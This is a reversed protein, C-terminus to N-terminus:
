DTECEDNMAQKSSQGTPVDDEAKRKGKKNARNIQKSTGADVDIANIRNKSRTQIPSSRALQQMKTLDPQVTIIKFDAMGKLLKCNKICQNKKLSSPLVDMIPRPYKQDPNLKRVREKMSIHEKKLLLINLLREIFEEDESAEKVGKIILNNERRVRNCHEKITTEHTHKKDQMADLADFKIYDDEIQTIKMNLNKCNKEIIDLRTHYKNIKQNVELFRAQMETFIMTLTAPEEDPM